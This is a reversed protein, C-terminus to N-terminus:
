LPRIYTSSNREEKGELRAIMIDKLRILEKLEGIREDKELIISEYSRNGYGFMRDENVGENRIMSGTGTLLWDGNLEEFNRVINNLLEFGPNSKENLVNRVTSHSVNLKRAFSNANMNYHFIIEKFRQKISM